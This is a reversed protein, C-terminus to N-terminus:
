HNFVNKFCKFISFNLVVSVLFSFFSSFLSWFWLLFKLPVPLLFMNLGKFYYRYKNKSILLYKLDYKLVLIVYTEYSLLIVIWLYYFFFIKLNLVIVDECNLMLM